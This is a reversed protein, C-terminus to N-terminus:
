YGRHIRYVQRGEMSSCQSFNHGREDNVWPSLNLDPWVREYPVQESLVVGFVGGSPQTKAMNQPVDISNVDESKVYMELMRLVLVDKHEDPTRLFDQLTENDDINFEAYCSVGLPTLSYPYRGTVKLNISHKNVSM